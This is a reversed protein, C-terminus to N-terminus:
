IGWVKLKAQLKTKWIYYGYIDTGLPPEGGKEIWKVVEKIGARFSIEAQAECFTESLTKDAPFTDGLKTIIADRDMHSMVTDKARM